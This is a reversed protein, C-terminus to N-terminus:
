PSYSHMTREGLLAYAAFCVGASLGGIIGFRNMHLLELNYGGVVLYCGTMALVLGVVKAATLREGWFLISYFAVLIPALYQLLIAAMVQIKSITYLYTFQVMAMGVGGLLFLYGIDKPRIRFLDRRFLAFITGLILGALTVRVQVLEFPTMGGQFLAKGANGSSAWMIAAVIVCLYGRTAKEIM